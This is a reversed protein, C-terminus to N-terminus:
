SPWARLATDVVRELQARSAGGAAQVATTVYKALDAPDVDRPLDGEEKARELRRRLATEGAARRAALEKRVPEAEDGCSLAGQVM